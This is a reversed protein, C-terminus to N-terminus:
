FEGEFNLSGWHIATKKNLNLSIQVEDILNTTGQSKLQIYAM